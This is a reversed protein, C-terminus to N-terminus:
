TMYKDLVDCQVDLDYGGGDLGAQLGSYCCNKIRTLLASCVGVQIRVAIRRQCYVKNSTSFPCVDRDQLQILQEFLTRFSSGWEGQTSFVCPIFDYNAERARELYKNMKQQEAQAVVVGPAKLHGVEVDCTVPNTVRVDGIVRRGGAFNAVFDGRGKDAPNDDRFVRQERKVELGSFRACAIVELVIADHTHITLDNRKHCKQLHIGRNDIQQRGCECKPNPPMDPHPTGLRNRLARSFISGDLTFTPSSPIAELWAGAERSQGSIFLAYGSPDSQCLQQEVEKRRLILIPEYLSRQLKLQQLSPVSLLTSLCVEPSSLRLRNVAERFEQLSRPCSSGDDVLLQDLGPISLRMESWSGVMSAVYASDILDTAFGLGCGGDKLPLRAISFSVDSIADVGAVHCLAARLLTDYAIALSRSESPYLGRLLHVLKTRMIVRLFCLELQPDDLEAIRTFEQSLTAIIDAIFKARYDDSGVPIGQILKGYNASSQQIDPVLAYDSPHIMINSPLLGLRLYMSYWTRVRQQNGQAPFLVISKKRNMCGVERTGAFDARMCEYTHALDSVYFKDDIYSKAFGGCDKAMANIRQIHPARSISFLQPSDPSGQPLQLPVLHVDM